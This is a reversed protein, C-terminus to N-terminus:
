AQQLGDTGEGYTIDLEAGFLEHLMALVKALIARARARPVYGDTTSAAITAGGFRRTTTGCRGGKM